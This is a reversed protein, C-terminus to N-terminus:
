LRANLGVFLQRGPQGYLYATEYRADTVNMVRATLDFNRGLPVAARLDLTVTGQMWRSNAADDFSGSAHSLTAGFGPGAKLMYDAVLSLSHEPRRALANGQNAGESRNETQTWSYSADLTFGAVPKMALVLELGKAATRAINDYTGWPRGTCIPRSNGFCSIFDIQNRTRRQFWSASAKLTGELLAVDAGADWSTAREPALVENGYDSFLQYLTPAKFGEGYSARLRLPGGAVAYSASGGFVTAGGFRSHDDHRLGALATLGDVPRLVAQVFGGTLTSRANFPVPDPEWMSPSATEIRSLEREVGASFSLMAAADWEGRLDLREIRGTSRFSTDPDNGPTFSRRRNDSIQWGARLRLGDAAYRLGVVGGADRNRERDATDAFGYGPPPFGDVGFASSQLMGRLDLTLGAALAVDARLQGGFTEFDDREAGGRDEAFASIGDSKQWNGGIALGVPGFTAAADARALMAHRAGGEIRAALSPAETPGLTEIAIVGGIAQSGWALSQAGRLIEIRGIHASSITGFNVGGGPSAPDAMKVGDVILVTQEGEAGRLRVAAFGGAGGNRSMTVGPALRLVDLLQPAQLRAIDAQTFITISSGTELASVPARASVIIPMAAMPAAEGACAASPVLALASAFLTFHRTM